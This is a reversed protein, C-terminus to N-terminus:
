VVIYTLGFPIYSFPVFAEPYLLTLLCGERAAGDSWWHGAGEPGYGRERLHHPVREVLYAIWERGWKLSWLVPKRVRREWATGATVKSWKRHTEVSHGSLGAPGGWVRASHPWRLEMGGTKTATGSVLEIQAKGNQGSLISRGSYPKWGTSSNFGLYIFLWSM